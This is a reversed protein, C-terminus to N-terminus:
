RDLVHEPDDREYAPVVSLPRHGYKDKVSGIRGVLGVGCRDM